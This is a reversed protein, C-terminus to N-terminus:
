TSNLNQLFLSLSTFITLSSLLVFFICQAFFNGALHAQVNLQELWCVDGFIVWIESHCWSTTLPLYDTKYLHMQSQQRCSIKFSQLSPALVSQLGTVKGTQCQDGATVHSLQGVATFSPQMSQKVGRQSVSVSFFVCVCVCGTDVMFRIFWSESLM